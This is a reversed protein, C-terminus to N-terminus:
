VSVLSGISIRRSSEVTSLSPLHQQQQLPVQSMSVVEVRLPSIGTLVSIAEADSAIQARPASEAASYYLAILADDPLSLAKRAAVLLSTFTSRTSPYYWLPVVRGAHMFEIVKGPKPEEHHFSYSSTSTSSSSSGSSVSSASSTSPSRMLPPPVITHEPIRSVVPPRLYGFYGGYSPQQDPAVNPSLAPWYQQQQQQQQQPAASISPDDREVSLSKSRAKGKPLRKRNRRVSQVAARVLKDFDPLTHPAFGYEERLTDAVAIIVDDQESAKKSSLAMSDILELRRASFKKWQGEDTFHLKSRITQTVGSVRAQPSIKAPPPIYISSKRRQLVSVVDAPYPYATFASSPPSWSSAVSGDAALPVVHVLADPRNMVAILTPDDAVYTVDNPRDPSAHRLAFNVDVDLSFATAIFNRLRALGFSGRDDRGVAWQVIRAGCQIRLTRPPLSSPSSSPPPLGASALAPFSRVVSIDAM